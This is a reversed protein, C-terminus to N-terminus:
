EASAPAPLPAHPNDITALVEALEGEGRDLHEKKSRKALFARVDDVFSHLVPVALLTLLLSLSQGGVVISATAQNFGSGIGSSFLLPAM